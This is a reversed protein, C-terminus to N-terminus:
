DLRTCAGFLVFATGAEYDTAALTLNGSASDLLVSWGRGGDSGQLIRRDGGAAHDAEIATSREAGQSTTGSIRKKAFDLTFFQPMDLDDATVEDCRGSVSCEFNEVLSCLARKAGEISEAAGSRPACALLLALLALRLNRM